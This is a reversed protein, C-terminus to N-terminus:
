NVIFQITKSSPNMLFSYKKLFPRGFYWDLSGPFFVMLILKDDKEIFLDNYDLEFTYNFEKNFDFKLSPFYKLNDKYKEKDCFFFTHPSYPYKVYEKFCTGNLISENFYIDLEKEFKDIGLIYNLEYKFICEHFPRFNKNQFTIEDFRLGWETITPFSFTPFNLLNEEKYHKPDFIHPQEGIILNGEYESTYNIMWFYTNIIDNSKLQEILNYQRYHEYKLLRFGIFGPMNGKINKMFVFSTNLTINKENTKYYLKDNSCQGKENFLSISENTSKFTSSKNKDFFNKLESNVDYIQPNNYNPNLDTKNKESIYIIESDMRLFVDILQKPEGIEMNIYINNDQLSRFLLTINDINNIQSLRTKFPFIVYSSTYENLLIFFIILIYKNM